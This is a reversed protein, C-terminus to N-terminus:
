GHLLINKIITRYLYLCYNNNGYDKIYIIEIGSVIIYSIELKKIENIFQYKNKNKTNFSNLLRKDIEYSKLGLRNKNNLFLIFYNPYLKKLLYYKNEM